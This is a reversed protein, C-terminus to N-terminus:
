KKRKKAAPIDKPTWSGDSHREYGSSYNRMSDEVGMVTDSPIMLDWGEGFLDLERHDPYRVFDKSNKEADPWIEIDLIKLDTGKDALLQTAIDPGTPKSILDGEKIEAVHEAIRVSGKGKLVLYLEERATHSHFRAFTEGPALTYTRVNSKGSGLLPSLYSHFVGHHNTALKELMPDNGPVDLANVVPPKWLNTGKEEINMLGDKSQVAYIENSWFSCTRVMFDLAATTLEPTLVFIEREPAPHLFGLRKALTNWLWRKLSESDRTWEGPIDGMTDPMFLKWAVDARIAGEPRVNKPPDILIKVSM